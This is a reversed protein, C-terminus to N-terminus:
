PTALAATPPAPAVAPRPALAPRWGYRRALRAALLTVALLLAAGVAVHLTAVDAPKALWVTLIGLTAQVLVLGGVLLAHRRAAHWLKFVVVATLLVIVAAGVRHAVHLWIQALTVPPLHHDFARLDNARALGAADTPPLLRGYHLPVDPVALGAEYHRMVAAVALQAVCAVLLLPAVWTLGPGLRPAAPVRDAAEAAAEDSWWRSSMLCVLGGLCLTLQGLIGHAVALDVEVMVVRLGGLVGQAVVAALLGAFLWRLRSALRERRCTWGIGAVAATAGAVSVAHGLARGPGGLKLAAFALVAVAAALLFAIGWRRRATPYRAVGWANLVGGLACLGVVTGLLRHTHEYFVGGAEGGLWASWPVAFMNHEFTNPWDPVSMGAGHSTVLGGMWILPFMAATTAAAWALAFRRPRDAANVATRAM